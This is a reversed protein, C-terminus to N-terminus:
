RIEKLLLRCDLWRDAQEALDRMEAITHPTSDARALAARRCALDTLHADIILLREARHETTLPVASM